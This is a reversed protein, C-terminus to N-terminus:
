KPGPGEVHGICYSSDPKYGPGFGPLIALQPINVSLAILPHFPPDATFPETWVSPSNPFVQSQNGLPIGPNHLKKLICLKVAVEQKWWSLM